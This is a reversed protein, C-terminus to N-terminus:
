ATPQQYMMTNCPIKLSLYYTLQLSLLKDTTKSACIQQLIKEYEHKWDKMCTRNTIIAHSIRMKQWKLAYNKNQIDSSNEYCNYETESNLKVCQVNPFWKLLADM